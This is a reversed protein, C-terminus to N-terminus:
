NVPALFPNNYYQAGIDLWESLLRREADNLDGAHSGGSDMRSFFRASGRASGAAMSAPVTVPQTIPLGTVPDTGVVVQIDQLAGMNVEQANDTFLLERYSKFQDADDDAPGDSLDLQSAPVRIANAADRPSHCSTCTRDVAGNIRPKSWLPHIMREYNIVIRCTASWRTACDLTTPSLTTLGAYRWAFSADKPRGSVVPDTWADDFVVNVSPLLSKCKDQGGLACTIRSRTQAMTEGSQSTLTPDAGPFASGTGGSWISAFLGARGHSKPAQANPVHCGNCALVEGPRVQLWNRHVPTIRRANQDLVSVILAVNAPVKARVSGDPEIPVYGIIERMFNSAGFGSQDIDRVLRDPLSVAKEIRLFRAPRQAATRLAPNALTAINPTASDVGDLDYVSRIDLVGVNESVWDPNLDIGPLKDLIVAPLARPQAIVMDTIMVGAEPTQLPLFARAVTDYMWLSYLPPAETATPDALVDSTCARLQGGIQARCQTWSVVIRGSGDWLPFAASFRGGPSLGPITRVDNGTAIRQAPGTLSPSAALPQTNEVYNRTDIVVIDGGMDTGSFPRVLALIDGNPMERPKTFQIATNNTGTLHSLAGYQLQLDTGDPNASYLHIGNKGPFADWRSWLIRGNQLVTPDMDHSQNFSIQRQNGGDSRMAHLVFAPERRDETQAEFQAKGEDILVAKSARQRTSTFVIDGSPLYHPAVDHGEAASLNSSIVRRLQKSTFTYEWIAWKPQNEERANPVRPGRMAFALRTGDFSVELDRIDYAGNNTVSGTINAEPVSSDARDRVYVEADVFFTRLNRLDENTMVPITKKVYAIPFDVTAPDAKQGSGIAVNGGPSCAGLVAALAACSVVRATMCTRTRAM